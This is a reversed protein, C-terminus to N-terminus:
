SAKVYRRVGQFSRQVGGYCALVTRHRYSLLRKFGLYQQSLLAMRSVFGMMPVITPTKSPARSPTCAWSMRLVRNPYVTFSNSDFFAKRLPSVRYRLTASNRMWLYTNCRLNEERM